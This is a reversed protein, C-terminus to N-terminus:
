LDPLHILRRMIKQKLIFMNQSTAKFVLIFALWCVLAIQMIFIMGNQPYVVCQACHTSIHMTSGMFILVSLLTIIVCNGRSSTM